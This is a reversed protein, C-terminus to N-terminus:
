CLDWESQEKILWKCLPLKWLCFKENLVSNRVNQPYSSDHLNSCCRYIWFGTLKGQRKRSSHLCLTSSHVCWSLEWRMVEVMRFALPYWTMTVHCRETGNDCQKEHPASLPLSPLSHHYRPSSLDLSHHHTPSSSTFIHTLSFIVPLVDFNPPCSLWIYVQSGESSM